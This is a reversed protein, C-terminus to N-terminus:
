PSKVYAKQESVHSARPKMASMQTKHFFCAHPCFRFQYKNRHKTPMSNM